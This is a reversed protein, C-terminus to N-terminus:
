PVPQSSPEPAREVPLGYSERPSPFDRSRVDDRYRRIADVAIAHVDAYRRVFRPAPDPTLGLLDALVLIQGDCAPGAGIGITPIELSETIRAAVPAPVGELVLAFAGAEELARADECLADAADATRGQVRYGGLAHVSQPVLGIHGLVPIGNQVLRGVLGARVRGGELKVAEAGAKIFDIAALIGASEEAQYSGFPMDAVLLARQVARHVARVAILMEELSVPLTSEYGLATNALSDGVLVLDIGAEDVVRGTPFDWATLATIPRGKRKLGRIAPATVKPLLNEPSGVRPPTSM